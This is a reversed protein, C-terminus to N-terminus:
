RYAALEAPSAARLRQAAPGTVAQGPGSAVADIIRGSQTNILQVPEGLAANRQARGSATLRVGGHDFTVQVIEGRTIVQPASLDRVSVAAGARLPRRAALGIIQDTDPSAGAQHAQVTTWIIDQPGITEGTNINRAYALVEVSGSTGARAGHSPSSSASHSPAPAGERVVIRRLGTPNSWNLGHARATRQVQVADLVATPGARTGVVVSSAAGAGEFLEGLTIRGDDDTPVDRLVVDGAIAPSTVLATIAALAILARMMM